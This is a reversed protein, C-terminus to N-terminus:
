EVDGCAAVLSAHRLVRSVIALAVLNLGRMVESALHDDSPSKADNIDINIDLLHSILTSKICWSEIQEEQLHPANISIYGM